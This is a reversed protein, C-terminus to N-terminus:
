NNRTIMLYERKYLARIHLDKKHLKTIFHLKRKRCSIGVGLRSGGGRGEEFDIEM